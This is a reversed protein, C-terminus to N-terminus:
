SKRGAGGGNNGEKAIERVATLAVQGSASQLAAESIQRVQDRAADLQKTLITVQEALKENATNLSANKELSVRLDLELDKKELAYQNTLDKKLSNTAIAVAAQTKKNIEDEIGEVRLKLAAITKEEAAIAATREALEKEVRNVKDAQERTQFLMKQAFDDSAKQRELQTRYNYDDQDRQRKQAIEQDRQQNQKAHIAFEENWLSRMDSIEKELALKKEEHEALLGKVSAAAIDLDYLRALETEEEKIAAQLLELKTKQELVATTMESIQRQVHLGLQGADLVIKEISPIGKVAERTEKVHEKALVEAQPSLAETGELREQLQEIEEELDAKTRTSRTAKRAAPSKRATM